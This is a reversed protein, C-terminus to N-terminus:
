VCLLQCILLQTGLVALKSDWVLLRYGMVAQPVILANEQCKIFMIKCM